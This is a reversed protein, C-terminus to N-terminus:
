KEKKIDINIEDGEDIDNTDEDRAYQKMYRVIDAFEESDIKGAKVLALVEKNNILGLLHERAVKLERKQLALIKDRRKIERELVLDQEEEKISQDVTPNGAQILAIITSDEVGATKMKVVDDISTLARSLANTKIIQTLLEKGAGAKKLKIVEEAKLVSATSQLNVGLLLLTILILIKQKM